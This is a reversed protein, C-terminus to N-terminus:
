GCRIYKYVSLTWDYSGLSLSFITHKSSNPTHPSRKWMAFYSHLIAINAYFMLLQANNSKEKKRKKQGCKGLDANWIWTETHDGWKEMPLKSKVSKRKKGRINQLDHWHVERVLLALLNAINYVMSITSKSGTEITNCVM